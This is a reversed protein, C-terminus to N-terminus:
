VDRMLIIDFVWQNILLRRMIIIVLTGIKSCLYYLWCEIVISFLVIIYSYSEWGTSRYFKCSSIHNVSVAIIIAIILTVGSRISALRAWRRSCPRSGEKGTPPGDYYKEIPKPPEVLALMKLAQPLTFDSVICYLAIFCLKSLSPHNLWLIPM